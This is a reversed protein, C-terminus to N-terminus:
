VEMGITKSNLITQENMKSAEKNANGNDQNDALLRNNTKMRTMEMTQKRTDLELRSVYVSITLISFARGLNVEDPLTM